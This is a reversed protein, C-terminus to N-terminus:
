WVVDGVEALLDEDEDEDKYSTLSVRLRDLKELSHILSLLIKSV